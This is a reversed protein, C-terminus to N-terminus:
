LASRQVDIWGRVGRRRAVFVLGAAGLAVSGPTPVSAASVEFMADNFDFDSRKPNMIDEVGMVYSVGGDFVRPSGSAFYGVGGSDFSEFLDGTKAGGRGKTVLYSFHLTSGAGFEGLDISAGRETGHNSFLFTGLENTDSSVAWAMSGESEYGSFYLAGTAGASQSLFSVSVSSDRELTVLEGARLGAFVDTSFGLSAVAVTSLISMRM